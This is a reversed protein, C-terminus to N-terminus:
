EVSQQAYNLGIHCFVLLSQNHLLQFHLNQSLQILKSKTEIFYQMYSTKFVM